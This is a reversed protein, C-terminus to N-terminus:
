VLKTSKIVDIFNYKNIFQRYKSMNDECCILQTTNFKSISDVFQLTGIASAANIKDISELFTIIINKDSEKDYIAQRSKIKYMVENFNIFIDSSLFEKIKDQFTKMKDLTIMSQKFFRSNEDFITDLNNHNIEFWINNIDIYPVPPPNNASRSLNLVCFVGIILNRMNNSSLESKIVDFIDSTIEVNSKSELLFCDDNTCYSSLCSEIFMPSINISSKNKEVLIKKIIERMDNLSNNIMVGENRRVECVIKGYNIRCSTEKMIEQLENYIYNITIDIDNVFADALDINKYFDNLENWTNDFTNELKDFKINLMKFVVNSFLNQWLTIFNILTDKNTSILTQCNPNTVKCTKNFDLYYDYLSPDNINLDTFQGTIFSNRISQRKSFYKKLIPKMRNMEEYPNSGWASRNNIVQDKVSPIKTIGDTSEFIDRLLSNKPYVIDIDNLYNYNLQQIIFNFFKSKNKNVNVEDGVYKKFETLISKFMDIDNQLKTKISVNFIEIDKNYLDQTFQFINTKVLEIEDLNTPLYKEVLFSVITKQVDYYNGSKGFFKNNIIRRNIEDGPIERIKTSADFIYLDENKTIYKDCSRVDGGEGSDGGEGNYSSVFSPDYSSSSSVDGGISNFESYFRMGSGDDKKINM